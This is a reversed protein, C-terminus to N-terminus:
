GLKQVVEIFFSNNLQRMAEFNIWPLVSKNLRSHALETPTSLTARVENAGREQPVM